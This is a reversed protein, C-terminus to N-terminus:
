SILDLADRKGLFHKAVTGLRQGLNKNYCLNLIFLIFSYM